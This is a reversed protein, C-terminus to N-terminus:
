GMEVAGILLVVVVEADIVMEAVDVEDDEDDDDRGSGSDLRLLRGTEWVGRVLLETVVSSMARERLEM